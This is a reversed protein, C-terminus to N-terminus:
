AAGIMMAVALRHFASAEQWCAVCEVLAGEEHRGDAACQACVLRDCRECTEGDREREIHTECSCAAICNCDRGCALDDPPLPPDFIYPTM